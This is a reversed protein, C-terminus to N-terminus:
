ESLQIVHYGDWIIGAVISILGKEEIAKIHKIIESDKLLSPIYEDRM